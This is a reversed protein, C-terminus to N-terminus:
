KPKDNIWDIPLVGIKEGDSTHDHKEPENFGLMKNIVEVAKIKDKTSEDKSLIVEKLYELQSFVSIEAIKQIDKQAEEIFKAIKPKRLNEFGIVEASKESYGAAIAAKTANWHKLYEICFIRQKDTLKDAM